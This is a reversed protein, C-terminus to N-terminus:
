RTDASLVHRVFTVRQMYKADRQVARGALKSTLLLNPQMKMTINHALGASLPFAIRQYVTCAVGRTIARRAAKAVHSLSSHPVYRRPVNAAIKWIIRPLRKTTQRLGPAM